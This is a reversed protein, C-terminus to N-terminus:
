VESTFCLHFLLKLGYSIQWIDSYTVYECQRWKVDNSLVINVLGEDKFRDRQNKRIKEPDGGKEARFLDLDLVM